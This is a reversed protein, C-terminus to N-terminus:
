RRHAAVLARAEPYIAGAIAGAFIREAVDELEREPVDRLWAATAAILGSFGLRGVQFRLASALAGVLEGPRMRGNRVRDRLFATASFGAILTGDVDFLAGVRPGAPADDIARTLRAHLAM